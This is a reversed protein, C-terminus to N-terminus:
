YGKVELAKLSQRANSIYAELNPKFRESATQMDEEYVSEALALCEAATRGDLMEVTFYGEPLEEDKGM